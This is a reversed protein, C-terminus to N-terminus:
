NKMYKILVSHPPEDSFVNNNIGPTPNLPNNPNNPNYNKYNFSTNAYISLATIPTTGVPTASDKFVYLLRVFHARNFSTAFANVTDDDITIKPATTLLHTKAYYAIPVNNTEICQDFAIYKYINNVDSNIVAIVATTDIQENAENKYEKRNLISNITKNVNVAIISVLTLWDSDDIPSSWVTSTTVVMGATFPTSRIAARHRNTSAVLDISIEWMTSTLTAPYVHCNKVTPVSSSWNNYYVDTSNYTILFKDGDEIQNTLTTVNPTGRIKTINLNKVIDEYGLKDLTIYYSPIYNTNVYDTIFEINSKNNDFILPFEASNTSPNPPMDNIDFSASPM